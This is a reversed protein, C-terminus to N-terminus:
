SSVLKVDSERVKKVQNMKITFTTGGKHKSDVNYSFGHLECISDVISLGLGASESHGNKGKYFRRFLQERLEESIGPGQDRIDLYVEEGKAYLSIEISSGDPSFKIANQIINFLLAQILDRNGQIIVDYDISRSIKQDKSETYIQLENVVVNLAEAMSVEDNLNYQRNEIRSIMLLANSLRSLRAVTEQIQAVRAVSEESLNRDSLLSDAKQRIITLPTLLEHSANQIFSKQEEFSAALQRFMHNLSRHLIEIEETNSSPLDPHIQQPTTITKLKDVTSYFPALVRKFALKNVFYSLVVWALLLILVTTLITIIITHWGAIREYFKITYWNGNLKAKSELMRYSGPQRNLLKGDSDVEITRFVNTNRNKLKSENPDSIKDIEVWEYTALAGMEDLRDVKLEGSEVKRIIDNRHGILHSDLERYVAQTIFWYLAIGGVVYFIMSLTLNTLGIRDQLKM